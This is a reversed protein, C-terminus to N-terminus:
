SASDAFVPPSKPLSGYGAKLDMTAPNAGCEFHSLDSLDWNQDSGQATTPTPRKYNKVDLSPNTKKGM